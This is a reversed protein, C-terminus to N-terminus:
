AMAEMVLAAEVRGLGSGGLEPSVYIGGFGLSGAEKVVDRPFHHKEDWEAAAPTIREATFRAALERIAEQDENLGSM